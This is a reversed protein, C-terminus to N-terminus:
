TRMEQSIVLAHKLQFADLVCEDTKRGLIKGHSIMVFNKSFTLPNFCFEEALVYRMAKTQNMQVSSDKM